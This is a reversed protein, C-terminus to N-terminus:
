QREASIESYSNFVLCLKTTELAGLLTSTMILVSWYCTFLCFLIINKLNLRPSNLPANKRRNFRTGFACDWRALLSWSVLFASHMSPIPTSLVRSFLRWPPVPPWSLPSSSPVSSPLQTTSSFSSNHNSLVRQIELKLWEFKIFNQYSLRCIYFFRGYFKSVLLEYLLLSIFFFVFRALAHLLQSSLQM